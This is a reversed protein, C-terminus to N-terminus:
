DGAHQSSMSSTSSLELSPTLFPIFGAGRPGNKNEDIVNEWGLEVVGFDWVGVDVIRVVWRSGCVLGDVNM